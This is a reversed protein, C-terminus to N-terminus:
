AAVVELLDKPLWVPGGDFMRDSLWSVAKEVHRLSVRNNYTDHAGWVPLVRVLDRSVLHTHWLDKSPERVSEGDLKKRDCMIRPNVPLKATRHDQWYADTQQAQHEDVCVPCVWATQRTVSYRANPHWWLAHNQERLQGMRHELEQYSGQHYAASMLLLRSDSKDGDGGQNLSLTQQADSLTSLLWRISETRSLPNM